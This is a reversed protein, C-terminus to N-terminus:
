TKAAKAAGRQRNKEIEYLHDLWLNVESVPLFVTQAITRLEDESPEKKGKMGAFFQEITVCPPTPSYLQYQSLAEPKLYHGSCLGEYETCDPRGWPRSVDVVSLPIPSISPGNSYWTTAIPLHM